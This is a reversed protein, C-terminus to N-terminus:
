AAPAQSPRAALLDDVDLCFGEGPAQGAWDWGTADGATAQAATIMDPLLDPLEALRRIIRTQNREGAGSRALFDGMEKDPVVVQCYPVALSLADIDHIANMTRTTAANRFLEVKLDTAIRVSPMRDAFAIM